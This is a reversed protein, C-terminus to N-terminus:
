PIRHPPAQPINLTPVGSPIAVPAYKVPLAVSGSPDLIQIVLDITGQLATLMALLGAGNGGLTQAIADFRDFNDRLNRALRAASLRLVGTQSAEAAAREIEELVLIGSDLITIRIENLSVHQLESIRNASYLSNEVSWLGAIGQRVVSMWRVASKLDEAQELARQERAFQPALQPVNATGCALTCALAVSAILKNMMLPYNMM